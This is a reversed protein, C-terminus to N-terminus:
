ALGCTSRHLSVACEVTLIPEYTHFTPRSTKGRHPDSGLEAADQFRSTSQRVSIDCAGMRHAVRAVLCIALCIHRGQDM